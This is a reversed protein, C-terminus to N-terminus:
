PHHMHCIADSVLPEIARQRSRQPTLREPRGTCNDPCGTSSGWALELTDLTWNHSMQPCIPSTTTVLSFSLVAFQFQLAAGM